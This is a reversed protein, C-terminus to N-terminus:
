FLLLVMKTTKQYYLSYLSANYAANKYSQRLNVTLLVFDFRIETYILRFIAYIYM